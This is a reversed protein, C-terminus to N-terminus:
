NSSRTSGTLCLVHNCSSSIFARRVQLDRYGLLKGFSKAYEIGQTKDKPPDNATSPLTKHIYDDSFQAELIDFELNLRGRVM